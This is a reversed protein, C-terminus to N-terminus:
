YCKKHSIITWSISELTSILSASISCELKKVRGNLYITRNYGIEILPSYVQLYEWVARLLLALNLYQMYLIQAWIETAKQSYLYVSENGLLRLTEVKWFIFNSHLRNEQFERELFNWCTVSCHKCAGCGQGSSQQGGESSGSSFEGSGGVWCGIRRHIHTGELGYDPEERLKGSWVIDLRTMCIIVFSLSHITICQVCYLQVHFLQVHYM